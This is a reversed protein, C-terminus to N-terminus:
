HLYLRSVKFTIYKFINKIHSVRYDNLENQKYNHKMSKKKYYHKM